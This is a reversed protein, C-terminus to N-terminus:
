LSWALSIVPGATDLDYLVGNDDYKAYLHSYGACLELGERVHWALLGGLRYSYQSGLGVGAFDARLRLDLDGALPIRSRLGLMPDIWSAKRQISVDDAPPVAISKQDADVSWYRAGLLLDVLGDPQLALVAAAEAVIRDVQSEVKRVDAVSGRGDERLSVYSLDLLLGWDSGRPTLEATLGAGLDFSGLLDSFGADVSEGGGELDVNGRMGVAFLRPELRVAWGDDPARAALEEERSPAVEPAALPRPADADGRPEGALSAQTREAIRPASYGPEPARCAALALSAAVAFALANNM